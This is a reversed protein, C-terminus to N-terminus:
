DWSFAGRRRLYIYGGLVLAMFLGMELLIFPGYKLYTHYVLTWPYMFVVEVDFVLFIIGVLYYRVSFQEHADGLYEVGCEYIEYKKKTIEDAKKGTLRNLGLLLSSLSVAIFALIAVAIYALSGDLQFTM